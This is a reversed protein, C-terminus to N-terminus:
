TSPMPVLGFIVWDLAFVICCVVSATNNYKRILVMSLSLAASTERLLVFCSYSLLVIFVNKSVMLIVSPPLTATSLRLFVDWYGELRELNLPM